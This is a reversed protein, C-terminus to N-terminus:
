QDNKWILYIWAAAKLLDEKNKKRQYRILKYVVEGYAHGPFFQNTFAMLDNKDEGKDNYGKEKARGLVLERAEEMFEEFSGHQTQFAQSSHFNCFWEGVIKHQGANGCAHM